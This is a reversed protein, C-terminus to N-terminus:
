GGRDHNSVAIDPRGWPAQQAYAQIPLVLLILALAKKM